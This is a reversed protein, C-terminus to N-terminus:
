MSFCVADLSSYEAGRIFVDFESSEGVLGYDGEAVVVESKGDLGEAYGIEELECM